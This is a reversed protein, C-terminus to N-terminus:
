SEGLGHSEHSLELVHDILKNPVVIREGKVLISDVVSLEEFIKAYPTIWVEESLRGQRVAGVVLSLVKDAATETVLDDKTLPSNESGIVVRNM